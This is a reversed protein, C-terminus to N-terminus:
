NMQFEKDNKQRKKREYGSLEQLYVFILSKKKQDCTNKVDVDEMITCKLGMIMFSKLHPNLVGEFFQSHITGFENKLKEIRLFSRITCHLM